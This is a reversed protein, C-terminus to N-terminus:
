HGFGFVQGEGEVGGWYRVEGNKILQGLYNPPPDVMQSKATFASALGAIGPGFGDSAASMFSHSHSASFVCPICKGSCDMACAPCLGAGTGAGGARRVEHGRPLRMAELLLM